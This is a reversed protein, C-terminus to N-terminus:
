PRDDSTQGSTFEVLKDWQIRNEYDCFQKRFEEVFLYVVQECQCRFAENREHAKEGIPEIILKYIEDNGTIFKWFPQGCLKLYDGKDQSSPRQKGYCCGNICQVNRASTGQRYIRAAQKFNERMKKIQSSNGWNPGSKVAILYRVNKIDVELDIGEATSKGHAGYAQQCLFIALGELFKGLLTEEQSSLHADLVAQVLEHPTAIGKARLLYPNKRALM